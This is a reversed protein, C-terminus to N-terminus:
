GIAPSHRDRRDRGRPRSRQKQGAGRRRFQSKNSTENEWKIEHTTMRGKIERNLDTALMAAEAFPGYDKKSRYQRDYKSKWQRYEPRRCYEVHRPMTKKRETRAKAPDYTAKFYAAKKAKIMALNKRRYEADYLRKEEVIQAKTKGKRRGLGSCRRSCFIRVGDRKARNVANPPKDTTKGCHPCTIKMNM